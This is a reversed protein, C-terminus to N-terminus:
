LCIIKRLVRFIWISKTSLIGPQGVDVEVIEAVGEDGCGKLAFYIHFRRGGNQAVVVGSKGEAGVGVGCPLLLVFGSM